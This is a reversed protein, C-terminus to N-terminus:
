GHGPKTGPLEHTEDEQPPPANRGYSIPGCFQTLVTTAGGGLLGMVGGSVQFPSHTMFLSKDLWQGGSEGAVAFLFGLAASTSACSLVNGGVEKITPGMQQYTHLVSAGADGFAVLVGVATGSLEHLVHTGFRQDLTHGIKRGAMGMVGAKASALTFGTVGHAVNRVVSSVTSESNDQVVISVDANAAERMPLSGNRPQPVEGKALANTPLDAAPGSVVMRPLAPDKHGQASNTAPAAVVRNVALLATLPYLPNVM